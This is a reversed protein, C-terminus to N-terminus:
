KSLAKNVKHLEGTIRDASANISTRIDMMISLSKWLEGKVNEDPTPPCSRGVCDWLIPFDERVRNECNQLTICIKRFEESAVSNSVLKSGSKQLNIRVDRIAVLMLFPDEYRELQSFVARDLFTLSGMLEKRSQELWAIKNQYLHPLHKKVVSACERLIELSSVNLKRIIYNFDMVGQGADFDVGM